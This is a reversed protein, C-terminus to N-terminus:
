KIINLLEPKQFYTILICIFLKFNVINLFLYYPRTLKHWNEFNRNEKRERISQVEM